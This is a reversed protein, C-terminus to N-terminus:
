KFINRRYFKLLELTSRIDAEARHGQPRPPQKMGPYWRMSLELLSSVDVNRYHLWKEPAKLHVRMFDRDFSVNAGALPSRRRQPCHQRIYELLGVEVDSRLLESNYVDRLLGSKTHTEMCWDDLKSNFSIANPYGVVAHYGEDLENLEADTVLAAVELVLHDRPTLGTTELDIWVIPAFSM